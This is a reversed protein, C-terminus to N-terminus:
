SGMQVSFFLCTSINAFKNFFFIQFIGCPLHSCHFLSHVNLFPRFVKRVWQIHQFAETAASDLATEGNGLRLIRGEHWLVIVILAEM